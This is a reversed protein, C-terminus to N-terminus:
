GNGQRGQERFAAYAMNQEVTPPQPPEPSVSATEVLITSAQPRNPVLPPSAPRSSPDEYDMESVSDASSGSHTGVIIYTGKSHTRVLSTYYEQLVERTCQGQM